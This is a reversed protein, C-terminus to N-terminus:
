DLVSCTAGYYVGLFYPFFRVKKDKAFLLIVYLPLPIRGNFITSQLVRIRNGHITLTKLIALDAFINNPLSSLKSGHISLTTLSDTGFHFLKSTIQTICIMPMFNMGRSITNSLPFRLNKVNFPMSSIGNILM